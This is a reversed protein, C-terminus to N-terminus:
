PVFPYCTGFLIGSAIYPDEPTGAYSDPQVQDLELRQGARGVARGADDYLTAEPEFQVRLGAPWVVSVNRGDPTRLWVPDGSAAADGELVGAVPDIVGFAACSVPTGDVVRVVSFTRL